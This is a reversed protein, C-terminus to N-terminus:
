KKKAQGQRDIEAAVVDYVGSPFTEWSTINQKFSRSYFNFIKGKNLGHLDCAAELLAAEGVSITEHLGEADTDDGDFTSISLVAKISMRMGYTLASGIAQVQNKNGSTDFPLSVVTEESHGERHSLRATVSMFGETTAPQFSMSFGYHSRAPLTANNIDDFTAYTSQQTKGTKKVPLFEAQMLAFDRLFAGRSEKEMIVIQMDLLQQMKDVDFRPDTMAREILSVMPLTGSLAVAGQDVAESPDSVAKEDAKM